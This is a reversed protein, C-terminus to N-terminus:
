DVFQLEIGFTMKPPQIYPAALVDFFRYSGKFTIPGYGFRAMARFEKYNHIGRIITKENKNAKYIYRFSIPFEYGTGIDLFIGPYLTSSKSLLFRNYIYPSLTVGSYREVQYVESTIMSDQNLNHWSQRFNIEFGIQNFRTIHKKVSYIWEMSWSSKFAQSTENLSPNYFNVAFSSHQNNWPKLYDSEQQGPNTNVMDVNIELSQDAIMVERHVAEYYEHLFHLHYNAPKLDNFDYFGSERTLASFYHVDTPGILIVSVGEIPEQTDSDVIKGSITYTQATLNLSTFLLILLLSIRVTGSKLFHFKQIRM